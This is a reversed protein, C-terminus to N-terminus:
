SKKTRKWGSHWGKLAKDIVRDLEEPNNVLKRFKEKEAETM